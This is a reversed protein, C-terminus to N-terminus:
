IQTELIGLEEWKWLNERIQDKTDKAQDQGEEVKDIKAM